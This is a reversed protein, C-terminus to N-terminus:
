RVSASTRRMSSDPSSGSPASCSTMPPVPSRSSRSSPWSTTLKVPEASVAIFSRECGFRSRWETGNLASASESLAAMRAGSTVGSSSSNSRKTLSTARSIVTLAPCFHVAIRRAMTGRRCAAASASRSRARSALTTTPSGAFSPTRM